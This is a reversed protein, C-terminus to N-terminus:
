ERYNMSSPSLKQKFFYQCICVTFQETQYSASIASIQLVTKQLTIVCTMSDHKAQLAIDVVIWDKLSESIILRMKTQLLFLSLSQLSTTRVTEGWEKRIKWWTWLQTLTWHQIILSQLRLQERTCIRSRIVRDANIDWYAPCLVQKVCISHM